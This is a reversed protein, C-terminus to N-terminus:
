HCPLCCCFRCDHGAEQLLGCVPGGERGIVRAPTHHCYSSFDGRARGLPPQVDSPGAVGLLGGVRRTGGLPVGLTGANRASEKSDPGGPFGLLQLPPALLLEPYYPSERSCQVEWQMGRCKCFRTKSPGAFGDTKFWFVPSAPNGISLVKHVEAVM